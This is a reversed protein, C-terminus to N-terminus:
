SQGMKSKKKLGFSGITKTSIFSVFFTLMFVAALYIFDSKCGLEILANVVIMHYVYIAYSIDTKLHFRPFRYAFGLIASFSLVSSFLGYQGLFVDSESKIVLYAVLLVVFWYKKLFELCLGKNEFLVVGLFFLWMYRAVSYHYILGIIGPLITQIEKHFLALLTFLVFFLFQLMKKKNLFKYLFYAVVYFQLIICMTWLSGNPTGHGYDRLFSPVWFQFFTSQTVNFILFKSWEVAGKFLFLIVISNLLVACWLEPYIRWFRKKCFVGFSNSRGISSWILFGSLSFFFPVGPLWLFRDIDYPIHISLLWISHKYTIWVAALLRMLSLCNKNENADM